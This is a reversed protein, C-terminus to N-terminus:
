SRSPRVVQGAREPGPIVRPQFKIHTSASARYLKGLVVFAFRAAGPGDPRGHWPYPDHGTSDDLRLRCDEYGGLPEGREDRLRVVVQGTPPVTLEIRDDPLDRLDIVDEPVITRDASRYVMTIDGVVVTNGNLLVAAGHIRDGDLKIGNKTGLDTIIVEGDDGM